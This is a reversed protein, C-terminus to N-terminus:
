GIGHWTLWCFCSLVFVVASILFPNHQQALVEHWQIMMRVGTLCNETM